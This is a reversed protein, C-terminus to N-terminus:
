GALGAVLNVLLAVIVTGYLYALLAQTQATRRMATTRLDTDSVAFSMGVTFAVYTFDTYSPATGGDAHFDIGGPPDTYYLRAYRLAFLTHVCGWSAVVAALVAGATLPDHRLGGQALVVVLGALSAVAALLVIGREVVRAPEERLAHEATAEPGLPAVVLLTWVVFLAGAAAWGGLLAAVVSEVRLWVGVGVGVLGAVGLRVGASVDVVGSVRGWVSM